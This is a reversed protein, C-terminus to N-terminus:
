ASDGDTGDLSHILGPADVSERGPAPKAKDVRRHALAPGVVSTASGPTAQRRVDTPWQPSWQTGDFYTPVM